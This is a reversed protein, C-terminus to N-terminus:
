LVFAKSLIGMQGEERRRGAALLAPVDTKATRGDRQRNDTFVDLGKSFYNHFMVFAAMQIVLHSMYYHSSKCFM